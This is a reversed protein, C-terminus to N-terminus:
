TMQLNTNRGLRQRGFPAFNLAPQERGEYKVLEGQLYRIAQKHHMLAEQKASSNDMRELRLSQGEAILAPLNGIILYDTDCTVPTYELQAM